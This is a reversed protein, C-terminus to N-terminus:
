SFFGHLFWAGPSKLERYIWVKEGQQNQAVFYDRKAAQGDWWGCEIREPGSLVSLAGQYHPFMDKAVLARPVPLLWLPRSPWPLDQRSSTISKKASDGTLRSWALEPRHDERTAIGYICSDGLRARLREVLEGLKGARQRSDPLWSLNEEEHPQVVDCVLTMASVEGGLPTRTVRESLLSEWRDRARAPRQTEIHITSQQSRSHEFHLTWGRTAAGRAQLYHELEGLMRRIPFRLGEFHTVERMFGV